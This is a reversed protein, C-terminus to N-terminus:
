KVDMEGEQIHYVISDFATYHKIGKTRAIGWFLVDGPVEMNGFVLNGHPYGGLKLFTEKYVAIPSYLGGEKIRTEIAVEAITEFKDKLFTSPSRGCNISLGHLGSPMKGSEVLRSSIATDKKLWKLLDPLWNKSFAMDSNVMVVVDGNAVEVAYNWARYVRSLYYEKPNENIHQVFRMKINNEDYNEVYEVLEKTPDNMVFVLEEYDNINTHEIISDKVFEFYEPSKYILCVISVKM